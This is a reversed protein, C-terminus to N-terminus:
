LIVCQCFQFSALHLKSFHGYEKYTLFLHTDESLIKFNSASGASSGLDTDSGIAKEKQWM